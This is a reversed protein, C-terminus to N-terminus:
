YKYLLGSDITTYHNYNNNFKIGNDVVHDVKKYESDDVVHVVDNRAIIDYNDADGDDDGDDMEDDNDYNNNVYNNKYNNSNKGPIYLPTNFKFKVDTTTTSTATKSTTPPTTATSTAAVATAALAAAVLMLSGNGSGIDENNDNYEKTITALKLKTNKINNATQINTTTVDNDSGGRYHDDAYNNKKNYLHRSKDM